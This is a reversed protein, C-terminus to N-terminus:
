AQETSALFDCITEAYSISKKIMELNRAHFKALEQQEPPFLEFSKDADHDSGMKSLQLEFIM